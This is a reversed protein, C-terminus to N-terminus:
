ASQPVIEKTNKKQEPWLSIKYSHTGPVFMLCHEMNSFGEGNLDSTTMDEDKIAIDLRANARDAPNVRFRFTENWVIPKKAQSKIIKSKFEQTSGGSTLKFEAYSDMSGIIESSKEVQGQKVTINLTM